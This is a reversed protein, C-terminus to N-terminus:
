SLFQVSLGQYEICFALSVTQIESGVFFGGLCAAKKHFKHEPATLIIARKHNDESLAM